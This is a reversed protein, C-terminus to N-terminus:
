PVATAFVAVMLFVFALVGGINRVYNLSIWRNARANLTDRSVAAAKTILAEQEPVFYALTAAQVALYFLFAVSLRWEREFVRWNVVLSVVFSVLAAPSVVRWYHATKQGYPGLFMDFSEPPHSAWTRDSTASEFMMPALNLSYFFVLVGLCVNSLSPLDIADVDEM